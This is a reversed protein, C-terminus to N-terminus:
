APLEGSAIMLELPFDEQALPLSVRRHRRASEYIAMLVELGALALEGRLPHPAGTRLSEALARYGVEISGLLPENTELLPRWLGRGGAAAPWPQLPYERDDVVHTGGERDAIFVNPAARDGTRWLRARDGVIEYDQYARRREVLDGAFLEVRPGKSFQLVAVAGSEVVHGFRHGAIETGSVDSASATQESPPVRHLAGFVWEPTQDGLLFLVSDIAHTGDSLLDGPSQLRMSRVTGLAGSDIADKMASLDRGLRRQHNIALVVGRSRCAEVMARGDRLTTAMPKECYIGRVSPFAAATLTLPAHSTNHSCIAVVEPRTRELLEELSAAHPVALATGLEAAKAPVADCVGVLEFDASTALVRAQYAGM